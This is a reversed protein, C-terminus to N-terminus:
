MIKRRVFIAYHELEFKCLSFSFSFFLGKLLIKNFNASQRNASKHFNPIQPSACRLFKRIQSLPILALIQPNFFLNVHGGSNPLFYINRSNTSCCDEILLNCEHPCDVLSVQYVYILKCLHAFLNWLNCIRLNEPENLLRLDALTKPIHTLLYCMLLNKIKIQLDWVRLNRCFVACSHKLVSM